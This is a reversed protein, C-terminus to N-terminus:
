TCIVRKQQLPEPSYLVAHSRVPMRVADVGAEKARHALFTAVLCVASRDATNRHRDTVEFLASDAPVHQLRYDALASADLGQIAGRDAKDAEALLEQVQPELTSASAVQSWDEASSPRPPWHVPGPAM